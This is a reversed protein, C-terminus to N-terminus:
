LKYMIVLFVLVSIPGKRREMTLFLSLFSWTQHSSGCVSSAALSTGETHWIGITGASLKSQSITICHEQWSWSWAVRRQADVASRSRGGRYQQYLLLQRGIGLGAREQTRRLAALTCIHPLVCAPHIACNLVALKQAANRHKNPVVAWSSYQM